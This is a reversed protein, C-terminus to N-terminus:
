DPVTSIVADVSKALNFGSLWAGEIKGGHIWDGCVGLKTPKDWLFQNTLPPQTDAYRWRHAICEDPQDAGLDKFAAILEAMVASPSAEIHRESWDATAQLVWTDNASSRGPKSSDRAVWRLPGRNVFAADFGILQKQAYRLLLTWSGVMKVRHTEAAFPHDIGNLLPTAQPAPVALILADFVTDIAGHEVTSIFWSGSDRHIANVTHELKLTLSESLWKAPTTMRPTGVYRMLDEEQTHSESDGIVAIQIQWPAVIGAAAWRQVEAQFLPHRTTFYQAGHDWQGHDTRRTSMRGSPGRSKDFMVVQHGADQLARACSLGAIGAGVIAINM